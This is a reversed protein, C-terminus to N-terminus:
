QNLIKKTFNEKVIISFDYDISTVLYKNLDIIDKKFYKNYFLSYIKYSMGGLLIMIPIDNTIIDDMDYVYSIYNNIHYINENDKLLVLINTIITYISEDFDVIIKCVNYEKNLLIKSSLSKNENYNNDITNM